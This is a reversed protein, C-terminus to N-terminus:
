RGPGRCAKRPTCASPPRTNAFPLNQGRRSDEKSSTNARPQFDDAGAVVRPSTRRSSCPKTRPPSRPRPSRDSGARRPDSRLRLPESGAGKSPVGTSPPAEPFPVGCPEYHAVVHGALTVDGSNLDLAGGNPIEHICSEDVWGIPTPLAGALAPSSFTYSAVALAGAACVPRFM